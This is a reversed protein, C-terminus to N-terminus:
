CRARMMLSFGAQIRASRNTKYTHCIKKPRAPLDEDRRQRARSSRLESNVWKPTIVLMLFYLLKWAMRVEMHPFPDIPITEYGPIIHSRVGIGRYKAAGLGNAVVRKFLRGVVQDQM